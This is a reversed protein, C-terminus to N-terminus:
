LATGTNSVAEMTGVNVKHASYLHVLIVATCQTYIHTTITTPSMRPTHLIAGHGTTSSWQMTDYEYALVRDGHNSRSTNGLEM